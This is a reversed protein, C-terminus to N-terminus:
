ASAAALTLLSGHVVGNSAIFYDGSGFVWPKGEFDTIKGGAEEVLVIGAAYDWKDLGIVFVGEIGGRALSALALACSGIYRKSKVFKETNSFLANLRGKEKKGPEFTIMAHEANGDSVRVPRGKWTTGKGKEAAYLADGFAHYVVGIVPEGAHILSVSTSFLPLGNVFNATGDLPDIVWMYESANNSAGSEEALFGHTPFHKQITAIIAAEAEKDAATVFSKDAKVERAVSTEFHRLTIEGGKRAAEVAIDLFDSM